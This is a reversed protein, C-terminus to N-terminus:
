TGFRKRDIRRRYRSRQRRLNNRKIRQRNRRSITRNYLRSRVLDVEKNLEMRSYHSTMGIALGGFVVGLVVAVTTVTKNGAKDTLSGASAGLFAYLIMGPVMCFVSLIYNKLTVTTVGAIYNLLVFPTIPSLRLLCMIRLGKESLAIDLAEFISYRQSLRRVQDYMLYRALLFAVVSSTSSGVFVAVTGLTVGAVLSGDNAKSFVFGAGLTLLAGPVCILTAFFYVVIYAMMGLGPNEGVWELFVTIAQTIYMKGFVSDIIVFFIIMLLFVGIVIKLYGTSVLSETAEDGIGMETLENHDNTEDINDGPDVGLEAEKSSTRPIASQMDGSEEMHNQGCDLMRLETCEAITKSTDDLIESEIGLEIRQSEITNDDPSVSPLDGIDVTSTTSGSANSEIM